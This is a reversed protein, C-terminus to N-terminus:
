DLGLQSKIAPTITQSRELDFYGEWPDGKLRSLRRSLNKVTYEDPGSQRGLEEWRLPVSVTPRTKARTSYPAIATAGRGNRLYDVFTKGRRKAKSMSSTYRDPAYHVIAEAVAKAFAKVAEWDESPALPVVVHLGKGGTTKIFSELGLGQLLTRVLRAGQVAGEWGAQPDPDLDFVVMDPQEIDPWRSGWLHIELVGMQALAILSGPETLTLYTQPGGSETIRVREFPGPFDRGAHKHFFCPGPQDEHFERSVGAVGEPCRVMSIPRHLLYPMARDAVALYYDVLDGKSVQEASWFVRDINTLRVGLVERGAGKKANRSRPAAGAPTPPAAVQGPAPEPPSGPASHSPPPVAAPEEAVV